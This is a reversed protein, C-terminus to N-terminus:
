KLYVMEGSFSKKFTEIPSFYQIGHPDRIAAVRQGNRVTIGDVVVFNSFDNSGTIKM